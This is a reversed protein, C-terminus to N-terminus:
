TFLPVVVKNNTVVTILIVKDPFNPVMPAIAFSIYTLAYTIIFVFLHFLLLLLLIFVGLPELLGVMPILLPSQTSVLFLEYIGVRIWCQLIRNGINDGIPPDVNFILLM